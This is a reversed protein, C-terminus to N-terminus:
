IQHNKSFINIQRISWFILLCVHLNSIPYINLNNSNTSLYTNITTDSKLAFCCIHSDWYVYETYMIGLFANKLINVCMLVIIQMSNILTVYFFCSYYPNGKIAILSNYNMPIRGLSSM